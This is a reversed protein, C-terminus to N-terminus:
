RLPVQFCDIPGWGLTLSSAPLTATSHTHLERGRARAEVGPQVQRGEEEAEGVPGARAAVRRRSAASAEKAGVMVPDLGQTLIGFPNEVRGLM